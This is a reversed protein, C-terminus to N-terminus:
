AVLGLYLGPRQGYRLTMVGVSVDHEQAPTGLALGSTVLGLSGFAAGLRSLM